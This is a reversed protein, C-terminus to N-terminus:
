AGRLGWKGSRRTIVQALGGLVHKHSTCTLDGLDSLDRCFLPPSRRGYSPVFGWCAWFGSSLWLAARALPRGPAGNPWIPSSRRDSGFGEWSEAAKMRMGIAGMKMGSLLCITPAPRLPPWSGLAGAAPLATSLPWIEAQSLVLLSGGLPVAWPPVYLLTEGM